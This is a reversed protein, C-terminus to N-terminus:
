TSRVSKDAAKSISNTQPSSGKFEFSSVPFKSVAERGTGFDETVM